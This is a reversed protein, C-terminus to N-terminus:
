PETGGATEREGYRLGLLRAVLPLARAAAAANFGATVAAVADPRRQAVREGIERLEPAHFSAFTRRLIPLQHLFHQPNLRCLWEDLIQLLVADHALLLGSGKLFGECWAASHGPEVAASLAQSLHEAAQEGAVVGADLLLRVSRGAVLGHLGDQSSLSALAAHWEGTLEEDQILGLAAHVGVLREFMRRAAEDDLSACAAPLGVCIRAALGRILESVLPGATGRVDGYRAVNALAPLAASLEAVDNAVAAQNQLQRMTHTVAEPLDALLLKSLLETLERLERAQSALHIAYASSAEVVSNGFAGREVLTVEYEPEWAVTWLEHFTGKSRDQERWEGWPIGLLALRHLLQSRGLDTDKRLDLDFQRTSAESKLRVRKQEADLNARLPTKPTEPPVSGLDEGVILKRHILRMPLSNGHALVALAAENLEALGPFPRERLSALTEAFRVAEIVHASSADLDEARLLRAVKTLWRIVPVDRETWLHHYWGPSEVGAGYGSAAALRAHTWPICTAIVRTKPLGKLTAADGKRKVDELAPVHWAGCVVAIRDFEKQAARIAQRMFAERREEHLLAEHPGRAPLETRLATMAERIALFVEGPERRHEVMHEWWNETDAFGAARALWALPDPGLPQEEPSEDAEGGQVDEDAPPTSPGAPAVSEPPQQAEASERAKLKELGAALVASQPIDIFRVPLSYQAAYQIAQWEPSFAALPWIGCARPDEAAYLLLAVPPKMQEHSLLPLLPEAEPPAEILLVQPEIRRLAALLSRASGPGHHRIGFAHVPM